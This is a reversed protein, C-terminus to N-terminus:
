AKKALKEPVQPNVDLVTKILDEVVKNGKDKGSKKIELLQAEADKNADSEAKQNGSSHEAEFKRFEEEKQKKYDEIEKQAETKADKIRKTRYPRCGYHSVYWDSSDESSGKGGIWRMNAPSTEPTYPPCAIMCRPPDPNRRLKTCGVVDMTLKQKKTRPFM